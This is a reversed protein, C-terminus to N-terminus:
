SKFSEFRLSFEPTSKYVMYLILSKVTTTLLQLWVCVCMSALYADNKEKNIHGCFKNNRVYKACNNFTTIKKITLFVIEKLFITAELFIIATNAKKEIIKSM